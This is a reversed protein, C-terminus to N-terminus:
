RLPLSDPTESAPVFFFKALPPSVVRQQPCHWPDARHERSCIVTSSYMQLFTFSWHGRLCAKVFFSMDLHSCMLSNASGTKLRLSSKMVLFIFPPYFLYFINSWDGASELTFVCLHNWILRNAWNWRPPFFWLQMKESTFVRFLRVSDTIWLM